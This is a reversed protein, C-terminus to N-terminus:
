EESAYRAIAELWNAVGICEGIDRSFGDFPCTECSDHNGCEKSIIDSPNTMFDKEEQSFIIDTIITKEVVKM